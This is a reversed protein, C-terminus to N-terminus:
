GNDCTFSKSNCVTMAIEINEHDQRTWEKRGLIIESSMDFVKLTYYENYKDLFQLCLGHEKGVSCRILTFIEHEKNIVVTPGGSSFLDLPSSNREGKMSSVPTPEDFDFLCTIIGHHEDKSFNKYKWSYGEDMYYSYCTSLSKNKDAVSM